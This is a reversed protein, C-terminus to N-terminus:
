SYLPLEGVAHLVPVFGVTVAYKTGRFLRERELDPLLCPHGSVGDGEFLAPFELRHSLRFFSIFPMCALFSSIVYVLCM